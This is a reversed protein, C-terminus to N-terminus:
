QSTVDELDSGLEQLAMGLTGAASVETSSACLPVASPIINAENGALALPQFFPFFIWVAPLETVPLEQIWGLCQSRGLSGPEPELLEWPPQLTTSLGKGPNGGSDGRASGQAPCAPAGTGAPSVQPSCRRGM